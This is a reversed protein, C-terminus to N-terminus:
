TGLGKFFEWIRVTALTDLKCYKLLQKHLEKRREESTESAIAEQYAEVAAMGHQVGELESYNLEPCITPLVAKLSWSGNQDPHYYFNRAIPLLDDMRAHISLLGQSHEPFQDALSTLVKREFPANYAYIPGHPGCAEILTRSLKERPDHGSTDLFEHHTLKGNAGIQHLSFQFPLQEYPRTGVWIPIAFQVTEFDLFYTPTEVEPIAAKAGASDFYTERKLTATKVRQQIPNIEDDPVDPLETIGRGEWNEVRSSQIRPLMSTPQKPWVKDRNCYNCFPCAFPTSCHAGTDLNPEESQAATTQAEAIWKEVEDTRAKAEQTLDEIRLLGEYDRNGPYVFQNNIHAVGIQSLQIGNQQAIYTQIAVDDRHYDKVSTSSKVEVMQWRLGHPSRDPLMVDALALAGETKMTAEFIPGQGSQLLQTSQAFAEDWGIANFDILSGSGDKDFIEMAIDGVQFGIQFAAESASDDRLEPKNIELWLRKPCQRFAILKSKSLIRM